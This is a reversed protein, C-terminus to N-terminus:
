APFERYRHFIPDGPRAGVVQQETCDNGDHMRLVSTAARNGTRGHQPTENALQNGSNDSKIGGETDQDYTFYTTPLLDTSKFLGYSYLFTVGILINWLMNAPAGLQYLVFAEAALDPLSFGDTIGSAVCGNTLTL